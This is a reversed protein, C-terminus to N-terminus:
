NVHDESGWIDPIPQDAPANEVIHAQARCIAADVSHDIGFLSPMRDYQAARRRLMEITFKRTVVSLEDALM